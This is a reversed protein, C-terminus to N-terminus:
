VKIKCVAEAVRVHKTEMKSVLVFNIAARPFFVQTPFASSM